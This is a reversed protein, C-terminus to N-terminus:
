YIVKRAQDPNLRDLKLQTQARHLLQDPRLMVSLELELERRLMDQEMTMKRENALEYGLQTSEVKIWVKLVLALLLVLATMAQVQVSIVLSRRQCVTQYDLCVAM